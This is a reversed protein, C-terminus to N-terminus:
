NWVNNKLYVIVGEAMEKPELGDFCRITTCRKSLKNICSINRCKSSSVFVHSPADQPAPFYLPNDSDYSYLRAPTAGFISFIATKNRLLNDQKDRKWSAAIHLPGTDNTIFVDCMDILAAYANLSFEKPVVVCKKANSSSLQEIIQREVGNFVFGSSILLHEVGGNLLEQIMEVQMNVPFKTFPSTADSNFLVIGNKGSLRKNILFTKVLSQSGESLFVQADKFRVNNKVTEEPFLQTLYSFIKKRLHNINTTKLEDRAIGISLPYHNLVRKHFSGFTGKEFFPCFNFILSYNMGEILRRLNAVDEHNPVPDGSFLPFTKDIDPNPEVLSYVKRNVAYHVKRKPFLQKLTQCAVQINIADGINLDSVVLIPFTDRILSIKNLQRKYALKLLVQNGYIISVFGNSIFKGLGPCCNTLYSSLVPFIQAANAKPFVFFKNKLLTKNRSLFYKFM